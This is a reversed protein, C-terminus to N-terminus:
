VIRVIIMIVNSESNLKDSECSVSAGDAVGLPAGDAAGESSGLAAGLAAGLLAGDYTHRPSQSQGRTSRKGCKKVFQSM